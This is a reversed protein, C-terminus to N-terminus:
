HTADANEPLWNPLWTADQLENLAQGDLHREVADADERQLYGTSHAYTRLTFGPDAHGLKDALTRADTGAAISLSAATHRLDQLRIDPLQARKLLPKWFRAHLNKRRQYTGTTTPFVPDSPRDFGEVAAASFRRQLADLARRGLFIIRRGNVTKPEVIRLPGINDQLTKTVRLECKVFDVDAWTLALAEGPRLGATPLLVVFAEMREGAAAIFLTRLQAADFFRMPKKAVRPPETALVPNKAVADGALARAFIRRACSRVKAAMSPSALERAAAIAREVDSVDVEAIRKRGFAPILYRDVLLRYYRLTTARRNLAVERLLWGNAFEAFTM